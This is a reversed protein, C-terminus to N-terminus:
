RLVQLLSGERWAKPLVVLDCNHFVVGVPNLVHSKGYVLLSVKLHVWDVAARVDQHISKYTLLLDDSSVVGNSTRNVLISDSFTLHNTLVIAQCSLLFTVVALFMNSHLFTNVKSNDSSVKRFVECLLMYM